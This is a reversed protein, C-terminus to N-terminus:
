PCESAEVSRKTSGQDIARTAGSDLDVVSAVGGYEHTQDHGRVVVCSVEGPIEITESRTFPQQAHAHLLERRGLRTGDLGEVQWWDAYGDEGSDDHHLTVEFEYAGDTREFSVGVVNAERLDLESGGPPTSTANETTEATGQEGAGPQEGGPSDTCGSLATLAVGSWLGVVFRRRSLQGAATM